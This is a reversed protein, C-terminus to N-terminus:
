EYENVKSDRVEYEDGVNKLNYMYRTLADMASDIASLTRYLHDHISDIICGMPLVIDYGSGTFSNPLLSYTLSVNHEVFPNTNTGGSMSNLTIEATCSSKSDKIMDLVRDKTKALCNLFSVCEEYQDYPHNYSVINQEDGFHFALINNSFTRIERSIMLNYTRLSGHDYDSLSPRNKLHRM